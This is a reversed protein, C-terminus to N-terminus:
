VARAWPHSCIVRNCTVLICPDARPSVGCTTAAFPHPREPPEQRLPENICAFSSTTYMRLALVHHKGLKATKADAHEALMELTKGDGWAGSCVKRFNEKDEPKGGARFEREIAKERDLLVASLDDDTLGLLVQAPLAPTRCSVTDPRARCAPVAWLMTLSTM